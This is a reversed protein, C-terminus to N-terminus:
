CADVRPHARFIGLFAQHVIHLILKEIQRIIQPLETGSLKYSVRRRIVPTSSIRIDVVRKTLKAFQVANTMYWCTSM